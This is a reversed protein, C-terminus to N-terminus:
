SLFRMMAIWGTLEKADKLEADKILLKERLEIIEDECEQLENDSDRLDKDKSELQDKLFQLRTEYSEKITQLMLDSFGHESQLGDVRKILLDIRENLGNNDSSIETKDNVSVARIRGTEINNSGKWQFVYTYVGSGIKDGVLQQIERWSKKYVENDDLHVLLKGKKSVDFYSIHKTFQPIKLTRM